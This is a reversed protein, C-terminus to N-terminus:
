YFIYIYIYIFNTLLYLVELSVGCKQIMKDEFYNHVRFKPISEYPNIFEPISDDTIPLYGTGRIVINQRVEKNIDDSYEIPLVLEYDKNTLPRFHCIIHKVDSPGLNGEIQELKFVTFDNEKNYQEVQKVDVKYKVKLGGINKLEIPSIVPLM